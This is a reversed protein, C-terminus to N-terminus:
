IPLPLSKLHKQSVKAYIMTTKPSEHRLLNQIDLLSVGSEHLHTACSHRIQHFHYQSGIYKKIIKNCSTSSYQPSNQGNFLYEEPKHEIYYLRLLELVKESLPLYADKKGKAQEIRIMMRKSDIDSIKLNIVESVRLGVSYAISIIAKHKLNSINNIRTLLFGKDIPQPLRKEKRPYRIKAIKKPQVCVNKHFINLSGILQKKGSYSNIGSIYEYIENITINQPSKKFHILYSKICSVYSQISNQSYNKCKLFTEFDHLYNTVM